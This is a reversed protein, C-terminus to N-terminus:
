WRQDSDVKYGLLKATSLVTKDVGAFTLKINEKQAFQHLSWFDAANQLVPVNSLLIILINKAHLFKIGAIIKDINEDSQVVLTQQEIHQQKMKLIKQEKRNFLVVASICLTVDAL